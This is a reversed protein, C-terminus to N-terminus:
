HQNSSRINFQQKTLYIPQQLDYLLSDRNASFSGCCNKISYLTWVWFLHALKERLTFLIELDNFSNQIRSALDKWSSFLLLSSKYFSSLWCKFISFCFILISSVCKLTQHPILVFPPNLSRKHVPIAHPNKIDSSQLSSSGQPHINLSWLFLRELLNLPDSQCMFCMRQFNTAFVPTQLAFRLCSLSCM